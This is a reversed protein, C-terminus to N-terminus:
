IYKYNNQYIHLLRTTKERALFVTIDAGTQIYAVNNLNDSFYNTIFHRVSSLYMDQLKRPDNSLYTVFCHWETLKEFILSRFYVNQLFNLKSNCSHTEHRILYPLTAV